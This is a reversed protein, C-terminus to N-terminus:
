VWLDKSIFVIHTVSILDLSVCGIVVVIDMLWDSAALTWKEFFCILIWTFEKRKFKAYTHM